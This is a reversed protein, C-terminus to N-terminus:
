GLLASLTIKVSSKKSGGNVSIFFASM